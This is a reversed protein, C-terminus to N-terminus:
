AEAGAPAPAPPEAVPNEMAMLAILNIWDGEDIRIGERSQLRITITEGQFNHIVENMYVLNFAFEGPKGDISCEVSEEIKGRTGQASFTITNQGPGTRLIIRRSEQDVLVSIRRLTASLLGKNMVITGLSNTSFLRGYDPFQGEVLNTRYLYRSNRFSVSKGEFTVTYEEGVNPLAAVFDVADGPIICSVPKGKAEESPTKLVAIRRGDTCAVEITGAGIKTFMGCMFYRTEDESMAFAVRLIDQHIFDYSMKVQVGEGHLYDTLVPYKDPPFTNLVAKGKIAESRVTCSNEDAKVIVDGDPYPKITDRLLKAPFLAVGAETVMGPMIQPLTVILTGKLDTVGLTISDDKATVLVGSLVSLENTQAMRQIFSLEKELVDKSVRIEM